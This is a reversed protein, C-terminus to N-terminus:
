LRLAAAMASWSARPVGTEGLTQLAVHDAGAALHARAVGALREATGQPVVADLLADSGDGALDDDAWGLRRLNATYNALRLYTRAFERAVGRARVADDGVVVAVETALLARSGIAERAVATHEVPVFYPLAGLSREASLALMRPALAAIARCERRVPPDAADLGDLFATMAAFPRTYDSTAEPHGVGIGVLLRDAFDRALGAYEEALQAPEYAWINVISTAVVLRESAELLPRVSALRPSGGLWLTTYGLKEALRAAAGANEEGIRRYTTWLGIEGFEMAAAYSVATSDRDPIRRASAVQM